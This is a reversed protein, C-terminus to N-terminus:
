QKRRASFFIRQENEAPPEFVLEGYIKIDEFGSSLLYDTLEGPEWAYELHEEFGRQWLAGTRKFIDMGISCLKDEFVARWVCYIDDKEDIFVQGDLGRLKNPSNIDFILLGGPRIFLSLRHFVEKLIDPETIYNISDLCCLAADVTGYLDLKEMSQCLFLPRSGELMMAKNYGEALMDESSDVGIMDYGRRSLECALTGTGCALDLVSEINGHEFHKEFYDAWAKYDVDTTLADYCGALNNYSSM